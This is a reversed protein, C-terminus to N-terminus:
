HAKIIIRTDSRLEDALSTATYPLVKFPFAEGDAFQFCYKEYIKDFNTTIVIRADLDFHVPAARKATRYDAVDSNDRIMQLALLTPKGVGGKNNFFVITKM